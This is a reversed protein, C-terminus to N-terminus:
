VPSAACASSRRYRLWEFFLPLILVVGLNRTAAALAGFLGALLLNRRVIAAWVAGTSLALFLAESYAANLFFATPFFALALTAARASRTGHLTEAIRYLFFLAFLPQSSLDFGGCRRGEM